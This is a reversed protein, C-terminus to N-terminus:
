FVGIEGLREAVDDANKEMKNTYSNWGKEDWVELREHVGVIVVKGKLGAFEKLFDPILIRGLSDVELPIAGAFMFRNLGRTDAQGMSLTVLKLSLEKWKKESYIFLCKDLGRTVVIKKGLVKRFGAPISVRKKPDLKHRYEGILM